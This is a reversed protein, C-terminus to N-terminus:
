LEKMEGLDLNSVGYFRIKGARKLEMFAAITEALPVEGRWHLLYLDLRDTQLRQLSRECAAVTGRRTANSPLVKSVLFVEDRRAAMAEGVLAEARGASPTM